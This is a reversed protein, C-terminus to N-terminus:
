QADGLGGKAVIDRGLVPGVSRLRRPVPVLIRNAGLDFFGVVLQGQYGAGMLAAYWRGELRFLLARQIAVDDVARGMLSDLWPDFDIRIGLGVFDYIYLPSLM